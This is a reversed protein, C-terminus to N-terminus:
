KFPYAAVLGYTPGHQSWNYSARADIELGGLFEWEPPLNVYNKILPALHLKAGTTWQVSDVQGSAPLVEGLAGADIAAIYGGKLQGIEVYNVLFEPQVTGKTTSEISLKARGVFGGYLQDLLSAAKAGHPMTLITVIVFLTKKM